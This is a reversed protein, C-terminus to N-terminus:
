MRKPSALGEHGKLLATHLVDSVSPDVQTIVDRGGNDNVAFTGPVFRKVAEHATKLANQIRSVDTELTNTLM